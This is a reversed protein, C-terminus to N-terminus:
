RDLQRLFEGAEHGDRSRDTTFGAECIGLAVRKVAQLALPPFRTAAM